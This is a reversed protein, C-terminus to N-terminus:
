AGAIGGLFHASLGIWISDAGILDGAIWIAAIGGAPVSCAAFLVAAAFLWPTRVLEGIWLQRRAAKPLGEFEPISRGLWYPRFRPKAAEMGRQEVRPTGRPPTFPAPRWDAEILPVRRLYLVLSVLWTAVFLAAYAAIFAAWEIAGWATPDFFGALF